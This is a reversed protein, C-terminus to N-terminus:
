FYIQPKLIKRSSYLEYATGITSFDRKDDFIMEIKSKMKTQHEFIESLYPRVSAPGSLLKISKSFLAYVNTEVGHPVGLLCLTGGLRTNAIATEFSRQTGVADFVVDYGGNAIQPQDGTKKTLFTESAGLDRSLSLREFHSGVLTILRIGREFSTTVLSLGLPGDGIILIKSDSTLQAQSVGYWATGLVDGAALLYPWSEDKLEEPVKILTGEAHPVRFQEQHTGTQLGIFGGSECNATQGQRCRVCIGDSFMFSGTVLDGLNLESVSGGLKAVRGIFEHGLVKPYQIKELGRYKWLDSGCISTAFLEVIADGDHQLMPLKVKDLRVDFPGHHIAALM